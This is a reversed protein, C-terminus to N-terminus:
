WTHLESLCKLAQCLRGIAHCECTAPVGTEDRNPDRAREGRRAIAHGLETHMDQLLDQIPTQNDYKNM